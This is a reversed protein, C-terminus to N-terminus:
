AGKARENRYANLPPISFAIVFGASRANAVFTSFWGHCQSCGKLHEIEVPTLNGRDRILGWARSAELHESNM